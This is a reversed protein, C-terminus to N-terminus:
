NEKNRETPHPHRWTGSHNKVIGLKQTRPVREWIMKAWADNANSRNNSMMRKFEPFNVNGDDDSDVSKIM